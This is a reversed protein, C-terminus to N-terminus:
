KLQEHLLSIIRRATDSVEAGGDKNLVQVQSSEKADKVMIRYQEQRAPASPRWFALNSLLGTNKRNAADAEPDVYRVFYYGKSRDRDEVTFGVRDLALGVRRWARDFPELVEVASGGDALKLLRAKDVNKIDTAVLSRARSNDVGLYTMLRTLFEAELEPDSPRAQWLTAGSQQNAVVELLGRHSIYIETSDSQGTRELRTRFKDREGTSFVQDLVRGLTNRVFDQPLKARNEAWDTEMVGTDPQDINVLFGSEQWFDKILPWLAEPSGQVVLWRQSGARELRVNQVKPLVEATSTRATGPRSANYDSLTTSGGAAPVSFRDERTPARLDPPIELPPLQKQKAESKYDIAGLETVKQVSNQLTDCAALAFLGLPLLRRIFVKM